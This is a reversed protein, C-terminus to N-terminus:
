DFVHCRPRRYQWRPATRWFDPTRDAAIEVNPAPAKSHQGTGFAEHPIAARFLSTEISFCRQAIRGSTMPRIIRASTNMM